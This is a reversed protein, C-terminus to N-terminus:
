ADGLKKLSQIEPVPPCEARWKELQTTLDEITEAYFTKRDRLWHGSLTLAWYGAPKRNSWYAGVDFKAEVELIGEVAGEPWHLREAFLKLNNQYLM